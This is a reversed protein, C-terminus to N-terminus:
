KVIKIKSEEESKILPLIADYFNGTITEPIDTEDLRYLDVSVEKELEANYEDIEKNRQNVISHNEKELAEYEKHFEVQNQINFNGDKLYLVEGKENKAHNECLKIRSDEFQNYEQSPKYKNEFQYIINKLKILNRNRVYAFKKGPYVGMKKLVINLLILKDNTIKINM